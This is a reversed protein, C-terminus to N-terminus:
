NTVVSVVSSYNGVMQDNKLLRVRYLLKEPQAALDGSLQYQVEAAKYDGLRTWNSELPKKYEIRAGDMGKKFYRLKMVGDPLASVRLTTSITELDPAVNDPSELGLAEGIQPTYGPAAKVRRVIQRMFEQIGGGSAAPLSVSTFSPSEPTPVVPGRFMER